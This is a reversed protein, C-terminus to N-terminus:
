AIISPMGLFMMLFWCCCMAAGRQRSYSCGSCLRMGIAMWTLSWVLLVVEYYWHLCLLMLGKCTSWPTIYWIMWTSLRYSCLQKVSLVWWSRWVNCWMCLLVNCCKLLIGLWLLLCNEFVLEWLCAWSGYLCSMWVVSWWVRFDKYLLYVNAAYTTHKAVVHTFWRM